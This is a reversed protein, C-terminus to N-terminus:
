QVVSDIEAATIATQKVVEYHPTYISEYPLYRVTLYVADKSAPRLEVSTIANLMSTQTPFQQAPFHRDCATQVALFNSWTKGGDATQLLICSGDKSSGLLVGQKSNFFYIGSVTCAYPSGLKSWTKGGDTTRYLQSGNVAWGDMESIFSSASTGKPLVSSKPQIFDSFNDPLVGAAELINQYAWHSATLDSFPNLGKKVTTSSEDRGLLRNIATVAETRTIQRNPRFTGKSTGTMWGLIDASYIYEEAWYGTPVDTFDFIDDGYRGVPAAFQCRHLLVTFAARSIPANPRFTGDAYGSLIGYSALYNVAQACSVGAVDSFSNKYATGKNNANLLAYLMEALEGRTLPANPRIQGNVATLYALHRTTNLVPQDDPNAPTLCKKLNDPSLALAARAYSDLMEGGSSAGDGISKWLFVRDQGMAIIQYADSDYHGSFFKSRPAVVEISGLLGGWKAMSPTHFFSVGTKTEKVTVDQDSLGPVTISFGFTKSEYHFPEAAVAPISAIVMLCAILIVSLRKM